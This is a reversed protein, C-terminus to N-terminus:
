DMENADDPLDTLWNPSLNELDQKKRKHKYDNM